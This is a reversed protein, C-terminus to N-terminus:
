GKKLIDMVQNATANNPDLTLIKEYYEKAKQGNPKINVYYSGLYEYAAILDKKNKETNQSAVEIFKEYMPIALGQAGTSDIQARSKAAWLYGHPVTPQKESLKTFASDAEMFQLNYYYARGLSWFDQSLPQKRLATLAKFADIAEPYRNANFYIDGLSQLVETQTSDLQISKVYSEAALSDLERKKAKDAKAAEGQKQLAKGYSAYDFAQIDEPKAKQFFREFIAVAEDSRDQESLSLARAYYKLAVPPADPSNAVDKFIEAAKDFQKAMILYFAHAYKAQDKFETISMYKDSAEVAKAAEKRLYYTEALEKYAPAYDPDIAIAKNLNEVVMETNKSREYVKAIKYNAKANKKDAMAAREYSSVSEGGNNQLLYADGLVMHVEPDAGNITKAKNLVNIADIVFKTDALYAEGVARLVNADKSKSVALAKDLNAKAETANKEILKVQGKGAYNLGDKENMSIGKEFAALAKDKNWNNDKNGTRLYGLGLYYQNQSSASALRELEAIGKTPQEIDILRLAARVEPSQGFAFSAMTVFVIAFATTLLSGTKSFPGLKFTQEPRLQYKM